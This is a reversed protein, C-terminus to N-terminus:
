TTTSQFWTETVYDDSIANTELLSNRSIWAVVSHLNGRFCPHSMALIYLGRAMRAINNLVNVQIFKLDVKKDVSVETTAMSDWVNCVVQFLSSVFLKTPQYPFHIQSCTSCNGMLVPHRSVEKLNQLKALANLAISYMQDDFGYCYHNM